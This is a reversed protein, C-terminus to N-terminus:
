SSSNLSLLVDTVAAQIEDAGSSVNNSSTRSWEVQSRQVSMWDISISLM